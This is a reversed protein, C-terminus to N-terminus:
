TLDYRLHVDDLGDEYFDSLRGEEVFGNNRFLSIVRTAEACAGAFIIRGEWKAVKKVYKQIDEDTSGAGETYEWDILYADETDSIEDCDVIVGARQDPTVFQESNEPDKLRLGLVILSENRDYYELHKLEEVFGARQYAQLADQYIPGREPDVYDSMNVFVKRAKSERLRGLMTELMVTGLGRGRYVEDLYTWSLWYTEDTGEAYAAGTTGVVAGQATMVFQDDLSDRFSQQAQEFDDEDNQAIIDLVAGVDQPSMPRFDIGTPLQPSM